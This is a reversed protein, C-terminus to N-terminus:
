RGNVKAVTQLSSGLVVDRNGTIRGFRFVLANCNM